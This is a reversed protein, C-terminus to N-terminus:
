RNGMTALLVGFLVVGALIRPQQPALPSETQSADGDKGPAWHVPISLAPTEPTSTHSMSLALAAQPCGRPVVTHAGRHPHPLARREQPQQLVPGRAPPEPFWFDLVLTNAFNM